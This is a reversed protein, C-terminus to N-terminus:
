EQPRAEGFRVGSGFFVEEALSAYSAPNEFAEAATLLSYARHSISDIGFPHGNITEGSWEPIDVVTPPAPIPGSYTFHVSEHVLQAARANPGSHTSFRKGIHTFTGPATEAAGGLAADFSFRDPTADLRGRLATMRTIIKSLTAASPSSDRFHHVLGSDLAPLPTAPNIQKAAIEAITADLWTIGTDVAPGTDLLSMLGNWNTIADMPDTDQAETQNTDFNFRAYIPFSVTHGGPGTAAGDDDVTGLASAFLYAKNAFPGQGVVVGDINATFPTSITFGQALKKPYGPSLTDTSWDYRCYEDNRIFYAFREKTGGGPFAADVKTWSTPLSWASLVGSGDFGMDSQRVRAYQGERFLYLFDSFAAKGRLAGDLDQDFGAPFGLDRLRRPTNSLAPRDATWDYEAAWAGSLVFGGSV